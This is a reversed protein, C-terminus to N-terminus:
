MVKQLRHALFVSWAAAVAATIIIAAFALSEATTLLLIIFLLSAAIRGVSLGMEKIATYEDVFHGGDATQEASYTDISFRRPATGSNYFLDVALLQVPTGAALRAIWSSFVITALVRPSRDVRLSRLFHRVLYRGLFAICLTATLVAGLSQFSEGLVLFAALPWVLLLAAGQIGDLIFLGVALNNRRATLERLTDTYSWEFPEYMEPFQLLAFASLAILVAVGSFFLMPGHELSAAVFGAAAPMLAVLAERALIRPSREAEAEAMKYPIWYLARYIGIAVAFTGVIGFMHESSYPELFLTALLAFSFAAFLTSLMLARRVGRRLAMGTLPTLLFTVAHSLAYLSAVGALAIELNQTEIFFVRFVVIWAFINGAGLALRFLFRHVFLASSREAERFAM